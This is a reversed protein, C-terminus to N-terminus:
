LGSDECLGAACIGDDVVHQRLGPGVDTGAEM